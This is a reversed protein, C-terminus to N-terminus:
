KGGCDKCRGRRRQHPCLGGGGCDKCRSRQLQHPCLSSGGCDKCTSRQRQHPCLSTGGCDKCVCRRRLHECISSGRCDKCTSRYRQHPCLGGCDKCRSRPRQHPCLGSGGCDKCQSRQRQHPCLSSGGCDKCTSRRRQHPCLSSGAIKQRKAGGGSPQSDHGPLPAAAPLSPADRGDSEPRADDDPRRKLRGKHRAQAKVSKDFRASAAEGGANLQRQVRAREATNLPYIIDTQQGTPQEFEGTPIYDDPSDVTTGPEPGTAADASTSTSMGQPQGATNPAPSDVPANHLAGRALAGSLLPLGSDHMEAGGYPNASDPRRSEHPAANSM